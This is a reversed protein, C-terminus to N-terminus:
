VEGPIIDIDNIVVSTAVERVEEESLGGGEGGGGIISGFPVPYMVYRQDNIKGLLTKDTIRDGDMDYWHGEGAFQYIVEEGDITMKFKRSGNPAFDNYNPIDKLYAM